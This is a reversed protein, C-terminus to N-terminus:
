TSLQLGKEASDHGRIDFCRNIYGLDGRFRNKFKGFIGGDWFLQKKAYKGSKGATYYTHSPHHCAKPKKFLNL